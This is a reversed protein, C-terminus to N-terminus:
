KIKNHGPKKAQADWSARLDKPNVVGYSKGSGAVLTKHDLKPLADGHGAILEDCM